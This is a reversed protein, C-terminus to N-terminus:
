TPAATQQGVTEVQGGRRRPIECQHHTGASAQRRWNAGVVSWLRGDRDGARCSRDSDPRRVPCKHHHVPRSEQRRSKPQSRTFVTEVGVRRFYYECVPGHVPWSLERLCRPRMKLGSNAYPWWRWGQCDITGGGSIHVNQFLNSSCGHTSSNIGSGALAIFNQGVEGQGNYPPSVTNNPWTSIDGWALLTAGGEIRLNAGDGIVLPRSLYVGPAAFLVTGGAQGACQAIAASIAATDETHNDGKAGFTRVDCVRAPDRPQTPAAARPGDNRFLWGPPMEDLGTGGACPLLLLLLLGRLVLTTASALISRWWMM